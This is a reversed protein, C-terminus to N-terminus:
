IKMEVNAFSGDNFYVILRHYNDYITGVPQSFNDLSAIYYRSARDFDSSTKAVAKLKNMRYSTIYVQKVNLFTKNLLAKCYNRKGLLNCLNDPSYIKHSAGNLNIVKDRNSNSEEMIMTRILNANYIGTITDYKEEAEYKGVLPVINVFLFTFLSLVFVGVVIAEALLFGRENRKKM